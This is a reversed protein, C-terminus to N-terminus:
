SLFFVDKIGTDQRKLYSIMKKLISPDDSINNEVIGYPIGNRSVSLDIFGGIIEKVSTNNARMGPVTYYRPDGQEDLFIGLGEFLHIRQELRLQM